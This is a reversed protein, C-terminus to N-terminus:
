RAVERDHETLIPSDERTGLPASWAAALMTLLVLALALSWPNTIVRAFAGLMIDVFLEVWGQWTTPLDIINSM